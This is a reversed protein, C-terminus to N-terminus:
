IGSIEVNRGLISMALYLPSGIFPMVFASALNSAIARATSFTTVMTEKTKSVISMVALTRTRKKGTTERCQNSSIM